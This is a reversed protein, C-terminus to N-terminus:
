WFDMGQLASQSLNDLNCKLFMVDAPGRRHPVLLHLPLLHLLLLLLLLPLPGGGEGQLPLLFYTQHKSWPDLNTASEDLLKSEHSILVSQNKCWQNSLTQSTFFTQNFGPYPHRVHALMSKEEMEMANSKYSSPQYTPAYEYPHRPIGRERRDM